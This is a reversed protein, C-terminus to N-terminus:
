LVNKAINMIKKDVNKNKFVGYLDRIGADKLKALNSPRSLMRLAKNYIQRVRSDSLNLMSAVERYTHDNMKGIGNIMRVIEEYRPPLDGLMEALIKNVDKEMMLLEHNKVPTAIKLLDKEKVRKEYSTQLFGKLQRDTFAEHIPLDLINLIEQAIPILEGKSNVPKLKGNFIESTRQYQLGHAATFQAVSLYGSSEMASLLRDNRITIKIRYDKM